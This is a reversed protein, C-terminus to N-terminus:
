GTELRMRQAFRDNDERDSEVILNWQLVINM